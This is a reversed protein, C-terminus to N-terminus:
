TVVINRGTLEFLYVSLQENTFESWGLCTDREREQVDCAIPLRDVEQRALQWRNAIEELEARSLDPRRRTIWSYRRRLEGDDYQAFGRCFIGKDAALRCASNESDLRELLEQRLLKIAESREISKPKPETRSM